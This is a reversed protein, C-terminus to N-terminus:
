QNLIERGNDTITQSNLPPDFIAKVEIGFALFTQKLANKTIANITM